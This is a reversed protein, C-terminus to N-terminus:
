YKDIDNGAIGSVIMARIFSHNNVLKGYEIAENYAIDIEDLTPKAEIVWFADERLKVVYEPTLRGLMSKIEPNGM